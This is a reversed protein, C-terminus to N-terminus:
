AQMGPLFWTEKEGFDQRTCGLAELTGRLPETSLLLVGGDEPSERIYLTIGQIADLMPQSIPEVLSANELLPV